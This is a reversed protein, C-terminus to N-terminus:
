SFGSGAQSMSTTGLVARSIATFTMRLLEKPKPPWLAVMAARLNTPQAGAQARVLLTSTQRFGRRAFRAVSGSPIRSRGFPRPIAAAPLRRAAAGLGRRGDFGIRRLARAPVDQRESLSTTGLNVGSRRRAPAAKPAGEFRPSHVPPQAGHHDSVEPMVGRGM